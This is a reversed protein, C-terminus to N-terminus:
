NAFYAADGVIKVKSRATGDAATWREQLLHGRVLITQGKRFYQCVFQAVEDWFVVHFHGAKGGAYQSAIVIDAIIQGGVTERKEPEKVLRGQISVANLVNRKEKGVEYVRNPQM